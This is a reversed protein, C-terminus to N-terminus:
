TSETETEVEVNGYADCHQSNACSTCVLIILAFVLMIRTRM